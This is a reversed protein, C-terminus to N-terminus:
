KRYRDKQRQLIFTGGPQANMCAHSLTAPETTCFKIKKVFRNVNTKILLINRISLYPYVYNLIVILPTIMSLYVSSNTFPLSSTPILHSLQRFTNKTLASSAKLRCPSIVQGSQRFTTLRIMTSLYAATALFLIFTNNVLPPFMIIGNHM